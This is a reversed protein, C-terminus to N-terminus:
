GVQVPSGVYGVISSLLVGGVTSVMGLLVDQDGGSLLVFNVGTVLGLM